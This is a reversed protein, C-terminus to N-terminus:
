DLLLGVECRTSLGAPYALDALGRCNVLAMNHYVCLFHLSHMVPNTCRSFLGFILIWCVVSKVGDM